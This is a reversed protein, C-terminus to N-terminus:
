AAKKMQKKPIQLVFRTHAHLTDLRLAGAHHAAISMSLSLGLGTGQHPGKTTFFPDFIRSRIKIPIGSGSDTVGIYVSDADESFDVKVWREALEDVADLANNVLNLIVQSVLTPNMEAALHAPPPEIELRVDRSKCLESSLDAVERAMATFDCTQFDAGRNQRALSKLSRVIESIRIATTQIKDIFQLQTEVDAAGTLLHRRLDAARGVIITLPNNIEHAVGSALDVVALARARSVLAAEQSREREEAQKKETVDDAILLALRRETASEDEFRTMRLRMWRTQNFRDLIKFELDFNSELHEHFDALVRDRDEPRVTSMFGTLGGSMLISRQAGWVDEFNESVAVVASQDLDLIWFCQHISQSFKRYFNRMQNVDQGQAPDGSARNALRATAQLATIADASLSGGAHSEYIAACVLTNDTAELCVLAMVGSPFAALRLKTRAEADIEVVITSGVKISLPRALAEFAPSLPQQSIEGFRGSAFDAQVHSGNISFLLTDRTLGRLITTVSAFRERPEQTLLNELRRRARSQASTM